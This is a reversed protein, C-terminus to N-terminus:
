NGRYCLISGSKTVTYLSGKAILGDFAPLCQLQHEALKEGDTRSLICSGAM